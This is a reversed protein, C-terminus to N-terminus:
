TRTVFLRSFDAHVDQLMEQEGLAFIILNEFTLFLRQTLNPYDRLPPGRAKSPWRIVQKDPMEVSITGGWTVKALTDVIMNPNEERKRVM